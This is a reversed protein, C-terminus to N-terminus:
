QAVIFSLSSGDIMSERFYCVLFENHELLFFMDFQNDFLSIVMVSTKCEKMAEAPNLRGVKFRRM